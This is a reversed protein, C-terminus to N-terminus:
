KESLEGLNVMYVRMNRSYEEKFRQLESEPIKYTGYPDKFAKLKGARIWRRVTAPTVNLIEAAEDTTYYRESAQSSSVIFVL